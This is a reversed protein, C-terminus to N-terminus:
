PSLGTSTLPAAAAAHSPSQWGGGLARFLDVQRPPSARTPCAGARGRGRGAHARRRAGRAFEIKGERLRVRARDRAAISPRRRPGVSLAARRDLEHAIARCRPRPKRSRACCPATSAPSRPRRRRRPRRSAPATRRRTPSPGTSCRGSCGACRVAASCTASRRAPRASRAASASGRISIPPPSASGRPRPPSGASPRASTPGAPSCRAGDGVPIPQDLRLITRRAGAEPSLAAPARGTLTALRFLAGDREARLPPLTARQQDRLSAVRAVDLRTGRGAEFRRTTVNLTQDILGVIREAVALREAAAAADAYARATEAAVAVRVADRAAERARGRDGRGGRDLPHRPRVPRARLLHRARRRLELGDRDAGPSPRRERARPWLDAGAGIETQPLRGARTERLLARARALNAAAVRLDTNHPSRTPSSSTSCRIRISGGGTPRRARRHHLRPQRRRHLRRGRRVACGPPRLGPRGTCAALALLSALSLLNLRTM